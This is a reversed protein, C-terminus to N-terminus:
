ILTTDQEGRSGAEKTVERLGSMSFGVWSLIRTKWYDFLHALSERKRSCGDTWGAMLGRSSTDGIWGIAISIGVTWKVETVAGVLVTEYSPVVRKTYHGSVWLAPATLDTAYIARTARLRVFPVRTRRPVTSKFPFQVLAIRNLKCVSRRGRRGPRITGRWGIVELCSAPTYYGRTGNRLAM